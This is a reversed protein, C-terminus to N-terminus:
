TTLAKIEDRVESYNDVEKSKKVMVCSTPRKTGGAAGLYQKAPVYAYPPNSDECLVPLHSIVDIPSIDGAIVVFRCLAFVLDSM